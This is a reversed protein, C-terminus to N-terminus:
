LTVCETLSKTPILKNQNNWQRGSEAQAAPCWASSAPCSSLVHLFVWIRFGLGVLDWVPLTVGYTWSTSKRVTNLWCEHNMWVSSCGSRCCSGYKPSERFFQSFEGRTGRGRGRGRGHDRWAAIGCGGRAPFILSAAFIYVARAIRSRFCLRRVRKSTLNNTARNWKFKITCSHLPPEQIICTSM